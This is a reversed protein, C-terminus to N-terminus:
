RRPQSQARWSTKEATFRKSEIEPPPPPESIALTEKTICDGNGQESLVRCHDQWNDVTVRCGLVSSAKRLVRPIGYALVQTELAPHGPLPDPRRAHHTPSVVPPRPKKREKKKHRKKRLLVRLHPRWFLYLLWISRSGLQPPVPDSVQPFRRTLERM